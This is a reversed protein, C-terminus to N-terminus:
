KWFIDGTNCNLFKLNVINYNLTKFKEVEKKFGKKAVFPDEKYM